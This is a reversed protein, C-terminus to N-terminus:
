CPKAWKIPNLTLHNDSTWNAIEDVDLQLNQLADCEALVKFLLMDDAYLSLSSGGSLPSVSVDDIYVLFLLPGLISGQPVGSLVPINTSSEGGVRVHQSRSFLYSHVWSTIHNCVGYNQLKALLSRHPVSDFAKRLDFFIACVELGNDLAQLWKHTVALLAATTSKGPQFGWQCTTLPHFNSLHDSIIHYFHRELLKSVIPLLSIPRYNTADSHNTSKPIPVVSSVKWCEPFRGMSISINFLRTLSPVIADAVSKLMLASIGDPGSAKSVDLSKILYAVEDESCLLDDPTTNPPPNLELPSLPPVDKNFCTAFFENLTTAKQLNSEAVTDQYNLVPITSQQRNLYKVARWFQKNNSTNLNEFYSTKSDRLMRVVKNRLKKFKFLAEPKNSKKARLFLANRKRILRVISKTIWPVKRRHNLQKKPICQTMIELFKSQWNLASLDIDDDYLFADWHVESLLRSAEDFDADKYCWVSRPATCVQKTKHKWNLLLKIGYHDSNAIPPITSCELIFAPNSVLVLDILSSIGTPSVHTPSSVTQSLSFLHLIGQLKCFYPHNKNLFNINFDGVLVFSSFRHPSVSHLMNCFNDFFSVPSSPPRYLVSICHKTSSQPLSVSLVILELDFSGNFLIDWSLSSHIYILVGGGHRNRDLRIIHYDELSIESDAIDSSLWTEVVCIMSPNHAQVLAMLDDMKPYISRANFYFVTFHDYDKCIRRAPLTASRTPQHSSAGEVTHHSESM